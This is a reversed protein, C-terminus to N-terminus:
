GRSRNVASRGFVILNTPCQGPIRACSSSFSLPLPGNMGRISAPLKRTGNRYCVKPHEGLLRGSARSTVDSSFKLLHIPCLM